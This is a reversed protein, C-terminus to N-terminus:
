LVIDHVFSFKSSFELQNGQTFISHVWRRRIRPWLSNQARISRLLRWTWNRSWSGPLCLYQLTRGSRSFPSRLAVRLTFRPGSMQLVLEGQWSWLDLNSDCSWASNKPWLSYCFVKVVFLTLQLKNKIFSKPYDFTFNWSLLCSVTSCIVKM